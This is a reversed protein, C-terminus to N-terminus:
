RHEGEPQDRRPPPLIVTYEGPTTEVKQMVRYGLDALSSVILAATDLRAKVGAPSGPDAVAPCDDTHSVIISDTTLEVDPTCCVGPLSGRQGDLAAWPAETM